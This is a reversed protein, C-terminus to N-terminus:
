LYIFLHVFLQFLAYLILSHTLSHTFSRFFSCVFLRIFSHISPHILCSACLGEQSVIAITTPVGLDTANGTEIEISIVSYLPPSGYDMARITVKYVCLAALKRAVRLTGTYEDIRFTGNSENICHFADSHESSISGAIGLVTYNVKGGLGSDPDDATLTIVASSLSADAALQLSSQSPYFLKCYMLVYNHDFNDFGLPLTIHYYPKIYKAIM